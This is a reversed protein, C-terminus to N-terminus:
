TTRQATMNAIFERREDPPISKDIYFVTVNVGRTPKERTGGTTSTQDPTLVVKMRDGGQTSPADYPAGAGGDGAM